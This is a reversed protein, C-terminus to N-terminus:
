EARGAARDLRDIEAAILAGAKVLDRRVNPSPKWWEMPWPWQYAGCGHRPAFLKSAECEPDSVDGICEPGARYIANLAYWGAARPLEGMTYEDDHEASWGEVDMQRQREAAIDALAGGPVSPPAPRSGIDTTM